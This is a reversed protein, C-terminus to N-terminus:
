SMRSATCRTAPRAFISIEPPTVSARMGSSAVVPACNTEIPASVCEAGDASRLKSSSGAHSEVDTPVLGDRGRHIQRCRKCCLARWVAHDHGRLLLGGSTPPSPRCPLRRWAGAQVKRYNDTGGEGLSRHALGCGRVEREDRKGGADADAVANRRSGTKGGVELPWVIEEDIPALEGPDEGFAMGKARRQLRDHDANADVEFRCRIRGLHAGPGGRELAFQAAGDIAVLHKACDQAGQAIPKGRDVALGTIDQLGPAGGGRSCDAGAYLPLTM